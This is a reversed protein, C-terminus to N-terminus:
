GGSVPPILAIEDGDKLIAGAISYERNIALRMPLGQLGPYQQLFLDFFADTSLNQSLAMTIESQGTAEKVLSFCKIKVTIKDMIKSFGQIKM